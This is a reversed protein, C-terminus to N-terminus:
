RARCAGVQAVYDKAELLAALEACDGLDRGDIAFQEPFSELIRVDTAYPAVLAQFEELDEQTRDATFSGSLGFPTPSAELCGPLLLLAALAFARM